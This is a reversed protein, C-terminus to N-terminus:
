DLYGERFFALPVGSWFVPATPCLADGSLEVLIMSDQVDKITVAGAPGSWVQGNRAVVRADVADFDQLLDDRTEALVRAVRHTQTQAIPPLGDPNSSALIPDAVACHTAIKTAGGLEYTELEIEATGCAAIFVLLAAMGLRM